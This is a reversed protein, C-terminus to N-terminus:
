MPKRGPWRVRRREQTTHGTAAASGASRRQADPTAMLADRQKAEHEVNVATAVTPTKKRAAETLAKAASELTRTLVQQIQTSLDALAQAVVEGASNEETTPRRPNRHDKRPM